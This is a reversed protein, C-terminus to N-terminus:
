FEVDDARLYGDPPLQHDLVAFCEPCRIEGRRKPDQRGYGKGANWPLNCRRCRWGDRGPKEEMVRAAGDAAEMIQAINPMKGWSRLSALYGRLVPEDEFEELADMYAAMVEAVDGAKINYRWEKAFYSRQYGVLREIGESTM